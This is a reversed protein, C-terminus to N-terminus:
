GFSIVTQDTSSMLISTPTKKDTENLIGAGEMPQVELLETIVKNRVGWTVGTRSTGFDIAVIVDSEPKTPSDLASLLIQVFDELSM